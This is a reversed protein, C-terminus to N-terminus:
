DSLPFRTVLRISVTCYICYVVGTQDTVYMGASAIAKLGCSGHPAV